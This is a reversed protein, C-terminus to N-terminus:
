GETVVMVPPSYLYPYQRNPLVVDVILRGGSSGPRGVWINLLPYQEDVQDEVLKYGGRSNHWDIEQLFSGTRIAFNAFLPRGKKEFHARDSYVAEFFTPQRVQVRPDDGALRILRRTNQEATSTKGDKTTDPLDPFVQINNPLVVLTAARLTAQRLAVARPLYVFREEEQGAPCFEAFSQGGPLTCVFAAGAFEKQTRAVVEQQFRSMTRGTEQMVM